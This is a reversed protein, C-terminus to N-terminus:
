HAKLKLTLTTSTHKADTVKLTFSLSGAKHKKVKTRLSKAETLLPGEVTLTVSASPKSLTIVLRGAKVAVSKAKGGAVGLGKILTTTTCKRKKAKTTCVRHTVIASRSFKLGVPLGIAVASLNPAGKGHTVKLKLSPHGTAFGKTSGSVAPQQLCGTYAIPATASHTQGGQATFNGTVSGPKCNTMFAPKGNPGTVDLTLNTLPFDPVSPFTVSNNSLSVVGNITVNFPAPFTVAFSPSTATGGLTVTGKLPVPVLPSTATATGITCGAGGTLCPLDNTANPTFGSPFTVVITKNASENAAQTVGLTLVAGRSSDAVAATLKPAYPLTNCGTVTLPATTSVPTASLQSDATLTVNAAACNTPLRLGTLSTNIESIGANPLNTLVVSLGTAGLTVDATNGAQTTGLYIALGAVDTPKPAKVLYLVVNQTGFASTTVTGTGVQCAASPTGSAPPPSALCAGGAINENALLGPPLALTVDKVSDGTTPSFKADFGITTSSGATTSAPTVTLAPTIAASAAAPIAALAAVASVLGLLARRRRLSV